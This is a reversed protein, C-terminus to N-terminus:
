TRSCVGALAGPGVVCRLAGRDCSRRVASNTDADGGAEVVQLLATEFDLPTVAAWLGAALAILTHGILKQLRRLWSADSDVPAGKETASLVGAPIGDELATALM